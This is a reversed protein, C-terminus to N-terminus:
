RIQGLLLEILIGSVGESAIKTAAHTVHVADQSQARVSALKACGPVVKSILLLGFYSSPFETFHGNDNVRSVQTTHVM